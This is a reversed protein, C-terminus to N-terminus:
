RTAVQTGRAAITMVGDEIVIRGLRAIETQGLLTYPIGEAGIAATFGGLQQGAVEMSRIHTVALQTYGGIGAMEESRTIERDAGTAHADRASLITSQAGTDIIARVAVGNIRITAVFHGTMPDRNVKLGHPRGAATDAADSADPEGLADTDLARQPAAQYDPPPLATAAPQPAYGPMPAAAWGIAVMPVIRTVVTTSITNGDGDEDTTETTTVTAAYPTTPGDFPVDHVIQGGEPTYTITRVVGAPVSQERGDILVRMQASSPTAATAGIVALGAAWLSYKGM